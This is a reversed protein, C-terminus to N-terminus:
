HRVKLKWEESEKAKEQEAARLLELEELKMRVDEEMAAKEQENANAQQLVDFFQFM